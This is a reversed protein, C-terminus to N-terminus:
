LSLPSSFHLWCPVPQSLSSIVCGRLGRSSFLEYTLAAKVVDLGNAKQGPKRESATGHSAQENQSM